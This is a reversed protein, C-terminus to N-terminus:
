ARPGASYWAGRRVGHLTLVGEGELRALLRKAEDPSLRCLEIVDARRIQGHQKVYSHVMEAQQLADFGSQRVSGAAMGMARSLSPSLTYVRRRTGHALLLGAEVLREVAARAARRM